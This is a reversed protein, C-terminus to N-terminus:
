PLICPPRSGARPAPEAARHGTGWERGGSHPRRCGAARVTTRTVSRRGASCAARGTPPVAGRRAPPCTPRRAWRPSTAPSPATTTREAFLVPGLGFRRLIGATFLLTTVVCLVGTWAQFGGFFAALADKGTYAQQAMANLQWGCVSTVFSSLVVIGAIARLHASGLVLQLSSRLGHRAPEETVPGRARSADPRRSWLARVFFTAALLLAAALVLLSEAGIARALVRSLFGGATAGLTAGAGVFGFLRRAERPTLVYNALMWVQAPALVGFM